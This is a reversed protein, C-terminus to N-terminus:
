EEVIGVSIKIKEIAEAIDKDTEADQTNLYGIFKRQNKIYVYLSGDRSLRIIKADKKPQKGKVQRLVDRLEGDNTTNKIKRWQEKSIGFGQSLTMAIPVLDRMPREHLEKPITLDEVYTWVKLYRKVTNKNIDTLSTVHDVFNEGTENEKYWESAGWLLKAKAHGTTEQVGDLTQLINMVRVLNGTNHLNVIENDIANMFNTRTLQSGDIIAPSNKSM